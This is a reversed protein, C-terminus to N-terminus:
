MAIRAHHFHFFTFWNGALCMLRNDADSRLFFVGREGLCRVVVRYVVQHYTVGLAKPLFAPRMCRLDSIVISLYAENGYLDPVIPHPLLARMVDSRVGFNVLFCTGFVTRMPFPHKPPFSPLLDRM